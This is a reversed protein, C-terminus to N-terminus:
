GNTPKSDGRRTKVYVVAIMYRNNGYRLTSCLDTPFYEKNFSPNERTLFVCWNGTKTSYMSGRGALDCTSYSSITEPLPLPHLYCHRHTPTELFSRGRGPSCPHISDRCDSLTESLTKISFILRRSTDVFALWFPTGQVCTAPGSGRHDRFFLGEMRKDTSTLFTSVQPLIRQYSRSIFRDEMSPLM